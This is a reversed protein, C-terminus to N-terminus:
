PGPVADTTLAACRLETPSSSTREAFSVRIERPRRGLVACGIQSGPSISRLQRREIVAPAVRVDPAKWKTLSNSASLSSDLAARGTSSRRSAVRCSMPVAIKRASRVPWITARRTVPLLSRVLNSL